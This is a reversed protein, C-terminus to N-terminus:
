LLSAFFEARVKAGASVFAMDSGGLIFRAGMQVFTKAHVTDYVGGMGPIKGHRKCAGIVAEYAAKVKPNGFEGPIGMDLSLDNSGILLCDIGPVAAIADANAVAKETEIMVCVFTLENCRRTIEAVPMPAFGLSSPVGGLSRKGAPAFLIAEAAARAEDADDVHPFVIGHLGADLLRTATAFDQHTVRAIPTVGALGAAVAIQGAHHIAMAGHEMDLFLWDFGAQRAVVAMEVSPAIRLTLGVALKGDALKKKVLNGATM